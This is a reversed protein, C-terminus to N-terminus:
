GGSAKQGLHRHLFGLTRAWGDARARENSVPTGGLAIEGWPGRVREPTADPGMIGHGAEPYDVHECCHIFGRARLRAATAAAMETSPWIGDRGGSILLVPGHSREVALEAANAADANELSAEYWGRLGEQQMRARAHPSYPVFPVPVGGLTWSSRPRDGWNMSQWAVHSPVYAVTARVADSSAAVALAAEGGKSGGIIGVRAADVEPQAALWTLARHFYELPIEELAPPLGEERFYAVALAAYGAEALHRALGDAVFLGGESGGLVLLGPGPAKGAPWHLCGVLGTDRVSKYPTAAYMAMGNMATPIRTTPSKGRAWCVGSTSAPNRPARQAIGPAGVSM